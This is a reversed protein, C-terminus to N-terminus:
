NKGSERRMRRICRNMIRRRESVLEDLSKQRREIRGHLKSLRQLERKEAFHLWAARLGFVAHKQSNTQDTQTPAQTASVAACAKNLM